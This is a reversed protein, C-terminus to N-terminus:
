RDLNTRMSNDNRAHPPARGSSGCMTWAPARARSRTPSLSCHVRARYVSRLGANRAKPRSIAEALEALLATSSIFILTGERAAKVEANIEDMSMPPIGAEALRDAISLLADAAQRRKIAEDLLRVLAQSTLLGADRAAQPPTRCSL